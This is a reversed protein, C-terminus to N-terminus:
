GGAPKPTPGRGRGRPSPILAAARYREEPLPRFRAAIEPSPAAGAQGGSEATQPDDARNIAAAPQPMLPVGAWRECSVLGIVLGKAAGGVMGAAESSLAWVRTSASGKM